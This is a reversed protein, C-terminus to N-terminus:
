LRFVFPFPRGTLALRFDLFREVKSFGEALLEATVLSNILPRKRTTGGTISRKLSLLSGLVVMFTGSARGIAVLRLTLRGAEMTLLSALMSM